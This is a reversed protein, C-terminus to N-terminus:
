RGDGDGRRRRGRDEGSAPGTSQGRSERLPQHAVADEVIDEQQEGTEHRTGYIGTM